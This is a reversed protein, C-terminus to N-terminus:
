MLHADGHPAMVIDGAELPVTRGDEETRVYGRGETVMHFIIVHKPHAPLYSAITGGDLQGACWPSSFEGYFFVAGDLKVAKLVESLVDMDIALLLLDRSLLDSAQIFSGCSLM